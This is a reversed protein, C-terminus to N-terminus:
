FNHMQILQRVMLELERCYGLNAEYDAFKVQDAQSYIQSVLDKFKPSFSPNSQLDQLFEDTTKASALLNFKRELYHRLITILEAVFEKFQGQQILQRQHLQDLAKFAEEKADIPSLQQQLVPLERGKQVQRWLLGIIILSSMGLVSLWPFTHQRFVKQNYHAAAAVAEPGMLQQENRITLELPYRPNLPLLPAPTLQASSPPLHTSETVKIDFIPTFIDITPKGEQNSHFSINLLSLSLSGTQLPELIFSLIKKEKDLGSENQDVSQSAIKWNPQLPNVLSLLHDVLGDPDVRYGNPYELIAKLQLSDTIPIESDSLTIQVSCGQETTQWNLEGLLSIPLYLLLLRIWNM